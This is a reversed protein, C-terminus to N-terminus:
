SSASPADQLERAGDATRCVYIEPTIDFSHKYASAVAARFSEVADNRVLNVTCGGFGGGTM